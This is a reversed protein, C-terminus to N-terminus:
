RDLLPNSNLKPTKFGKGGLATFSEREPLRDTHMTAMKSPLRAKEQVSMTGPLNGLPGLSKVSALNPIIPRESIM